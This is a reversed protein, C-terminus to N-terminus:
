RKFQSGPTPGCARELAEVTVVTKGRSKAQVGKACEIWKTASIHDTPSPPQRTEPDTEGPRPLADDGHCVNTSAWHLLGVAFVSLLIRTPWRGIKELPPRPIEVYVAAQQLQRIVYRQRCGGGSLSGPICICPSFARLAGPLLIRISGFICAM